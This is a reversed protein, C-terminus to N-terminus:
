LTNSFDQLFGTFTLLFTLWTIVFKQAVIIMFFQAVTSM